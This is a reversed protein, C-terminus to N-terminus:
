ARLFLDPQILHSLNFSEKDIEDSLEEQLPFITVDSNNIALQIQNEISAFAHPKWDPKLENVFVNDQHCLFQGVIIRVEMSLHSALTGLRFYCFCLDSVIRRDKSGFKKNQRFYNKLWAAFPIRGDFEQLIAVASKIYSHVHM